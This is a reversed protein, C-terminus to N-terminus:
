LDAGGSPLTDPKSAPPLRAPEPSFPLEPEDGLASKVSERQSEVEIGIGRLSGYCRFKFRELMPDRAARLVLVLVITLVVAAVCVIELGQVVAVRWRGGRQFLIEREPLVAEAQVLALGPEV